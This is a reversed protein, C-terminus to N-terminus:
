TEPLSSALQTSSRVGTVTLPSGAELIEEPPGVPTKPLHTAGTGFARHTLRRLPPQPWAFRESSLQEGVSSLQSVRPCTPQQKACAWIPAPKFGLQEM